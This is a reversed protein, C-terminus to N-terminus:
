MYHLSAQQVPGKKEFLWGPLSFAFLYALGAFLLWNIGQNIIPYIIAATQSVMFIMEKLGMYWLSLFLIVLTARAILTSQGNKHSVWYALQPLIFLLFALRYDWNNGLLFTGLYIGAGSWFARLNRLDDFQFRSRARFGFYFGVALILLALSYLLFPFQIMLHDVRSVVLSALADKRFTGDSVIRHIYFAIVDVGYSYDAGKFTNNFIFIMDRLTLLFYAVTLAVGLLIPKLSKPRDLDLFYGIGMVPFIKLLIGIFLSFFSVVPSVDVLAISLAVVFFILIDVNAREVGLLIAPSFLGASMLFISFSDLEGSFTVVGFVFLAIILVGLPITWTLNIGSALVLYWIRPYNFIRHEPDFFDNVQPDYGSQYSQAGGTILRLDYFPQKGVPIGWLKWTNEYGYFYFSACLLVIGVGVVILFPSKQKLTQM